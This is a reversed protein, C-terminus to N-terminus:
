GLAAEAVKISHHALGGIQADHMVKAAPATWWREEGVHAVVAEVLRRAAPRVLGLLAAFRAELAPRPVPCPPNLEHRIPHADPLAAVTRVELEPPGSRYGEKVVGTVQVPAGAALGRWADLHETWVRSEISGSRNALTVTLYPKGATTTSQRVNRLVAAGTVPTGPVPAALPLRAWPATDDGSAPVDSATLLAHLPHPPPTTPM